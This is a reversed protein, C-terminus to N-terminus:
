NMPSTWNMLLYDVAALLQEETAGDKAQISIGKVFSDLMLTYSEADTTAALEGREIGRTVCRFIADRTQKRVSFTLTEVEKNDDCCNMGSLVAMCGQPSTSSTQVAVTHRLMSQIAQKPSKSGDDLYSTVEGCTDTYRKLCEEYLAKKSGFAAYFSASSLNLVTRLDALSTTEFGKEWFTNMATEIAKERDFERPRGTRAM